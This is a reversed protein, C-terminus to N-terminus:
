LRKRLMAVLILLVMCLWIVGVGIALIYAATIFEQQDLDPRVVTYGESSTWCTSAGYVTDRAIEEMKHNTLAVATQWKTFTTNYISAAGSHIMSALQCHTTNRCVLRYGTVFCDDHPSWRPTNAFAYAAMTVFALACLGNLAAAFLRLRENKILKQFLTM